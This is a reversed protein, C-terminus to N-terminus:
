KSVLPSRLRWLPYCGTDCNMGSSPLDPASVSVLKAPSPALLSTGKLPALSSWSSSPVILDLTLPSLACGSCTLQSAVDRSSPSFEQSSGELTPFRTYFDMTTNRDLGCGWATGRALLAGLIATEVEGFSRLGLCAVLGRLEADFCETTNPCGAIHVFILRLYDRSPAAYILRVAPVLGPEGAPVTHAVPCTAGPAPPYSPPLGHLWGL